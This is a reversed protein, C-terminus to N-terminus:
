APASAPAAARPGFAVTMPTLPSTNQLVIRRSEPSFDPPPELTVVYTGADLQILENTTGFPNDNVRVGRSAAFRVLLYEM